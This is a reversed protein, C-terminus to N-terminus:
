TVTRRRSGAGLGLHRDSAESGQGAFCPVSVRCDHVPLCRSVSCEPGRAWRLQSRAQLRSGTPLALGLMGAGEGLALQSLTPTLAAM